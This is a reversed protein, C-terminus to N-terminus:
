RKSREGLSSDSVRGHPELERAPGSGGRSTSAGRRAPGRHVGACVDRASRAGSEPAMDSWLRPWRWAAPGCRSRMRHAARGRVSPTNVDVGHEVLLRVSRETAGSRM